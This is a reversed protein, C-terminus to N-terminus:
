HVPWVRSTEDTNMMWRVVQSPIIPHLLFRGWNTWSKPWFFSLRKGGGFLVVLYATPVQLPRFIMMPIWNWHHDNPFHFCMQQLQRGAEPEQVLHQLVKPEIWVFVSSSTSSSSSANWPTSYITSAHWLGTWLCIRPLVAWSPGYDFWVFRPKIISEPLLEQLHRCYGTNFCSVFIPVAAFAFVHQWM